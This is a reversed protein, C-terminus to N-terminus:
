IVIHVVATALVIVIHTTTATATGPVIVVRRSLLSVGSSLVLLVHLLCRTLLEVLVM